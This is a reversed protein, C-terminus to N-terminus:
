VWRHSRYAPPDLKRTATVKWRKVAVKTAGGPATCPRAWRRTYRRRTVPGREPVRAARM